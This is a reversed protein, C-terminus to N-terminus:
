RRQQQQQQPPQQGPRQQGQQQQARQQQQLQQQQQQKLLTIQNPSMSATSRGAVTGAQASAGVGGPYGGSAIARNANQGPTPVPVALLRWDATNQSTPNGDPTLAFMRPGSKTHAIIYAFKNHKALSIHLKRFKDNPTAGPGQQEMFCLCVNSMDPLKSAEEFKKIEMPRTRDATDQFISHIMNQLDNRQQQSAKQNSAVCGIASCFPQPKGDKITIFDGQWLMAHVVVSPFSPAPTTSGSTSQQQAPSQTRQQQHQQQTQQSVSGAGSALAQRQQQQQQATMQQQRQQQAAHQQAISPSRAAQGQMGPTPSQGPRQQQAQMAAPTPSQGPRQQAQVAPTPSQGPRQQGALQQQQKQQAALQAAQPAIAQRNAPVGPKAMQSAAVVQPPAGHHTSTPIMGGRAQQQQQQQQQQATMQQRNMQLLHSQQQTGQAQHGQAGQPPLGAYQSAQADGTAARKAPPQQQLIAANQAKDADPRDRKQGALAQQQQQLKQQHLMAANPPAAAQAAGPVAQGPTAGAAAPAPSATNPNPTHVLINRDVAKCITLQIGRLFAVHDIEPLHTELTPPDFNLGKAPHGAEFVKRMGSRLPDLSHPLFVSLLIGRASFTSVIDHMEMGQEAGPLRCPADHQRSNTVLLVFRDSNKHDKPPGDSDLLDLAAALGETVANQAYGGGEFEVSKAWSDFVPLKPTFFHTRLLRDGYPAHEYFTVLAYETKVPTTNDKARVDLFTLAPHVCTEYLSKWYPEMYSSGDVVVVVQRPLPAAQQM